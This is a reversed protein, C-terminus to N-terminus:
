SPGTLPVRVPRSAAPSAMATVAVAATSVTVPSSSAEARAPASSRSRSSRRRRCPGAVRVVRVVRVSPPLPLAAGVGAVGVAVLVGGDLPHEVGAGLGDLLAVAHAEQGGEVVDVRAEDLLLEDGEVVELPEPHGLDDVPQSSFVSGTVGTAPSSGSTLGSMVSCTWSRPTSLSETELSTPRVKTWRSPSHSSPASRMSSVSRVSLLMPVARGHASPGM